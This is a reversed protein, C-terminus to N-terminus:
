SPVTGPAAWRAPRLEDRTFWARISKQRDTSVCFLHDGADATVCMVFDSDPQRIVM